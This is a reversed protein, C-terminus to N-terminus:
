ELYYLSPHNDPLQKFGVRRIMTSDLESAFGGRLSDIVLYQYGHENKYKKLEAVVSAFIDEDKFQYRPNYSGLSNWLINESSATLNGICADNAYISFYNETELNENHEVKLKIRNLYLETNISSEYDIEKETNTEWETSLEDIIDFLEIRANSSEEFTSIAALDSLARYTISWDDLMEFFDSIMELVDFPSIKGPNEKLNKILEMANKAKDALFAREETNIVGCVCNNIRKIIFTLQDLLHHYEHEKGTFKAPGKFKRLSFMVVPFFNSHRAKWDIGASNNQFAAELTIKINDPDDNYLCFTTLDKAEKNKPFLGEMLKEEIIISASQNNIYALDACRKEIINKTKQNSIYFNKQIKAQKM